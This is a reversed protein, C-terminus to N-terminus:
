GGEATIISDGSTEITRGGGGKEGDKHHYHNIFVVGGEGDGGTSTIDTDDTTMDKSLNRSSLQIDENVLVTTVTNTDTTNTTTNTKM